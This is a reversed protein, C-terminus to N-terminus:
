VAVCVPHTACVSSALVAGGDVIWIPSVTRVEVDNRKRDLADVEPATIAVMGSPVVPVTSAPGVVAVPCTQYRSCVDSPVPQAAPSYKRLAYPLLEPDLTCHDRRQVRSM